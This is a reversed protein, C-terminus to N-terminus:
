FRRRLEWFSQHQLKGQIQAQWSSTKTKKGHNKTFISELNYLLVSIIFFLPKLIQIELILMRQLVWRCISILHCHSSQPRSKFVYNGEQFCNQYDKLMFDETALIVQRSWFDLFVQSIFNINTEYALRLFPLLAVPIAKGRQFRFSQKTALGNALLILRKESFLPDTTPLTATIKILCWFLLFLYLLILWKFIFSSHTRKVTLFYKRPYLRILFMRIWLLFIAFSCQACPLVFLPKRHM